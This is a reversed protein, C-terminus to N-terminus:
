EIPEYKQRFRNPEVPWHENTGRVIYDGANARVPGQLTHCHAGDLQDCYCIGQPDPAPHGPGMFREAYVEVPRCRYLTM